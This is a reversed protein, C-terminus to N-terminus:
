SRIQAPHDDGQTLAALAAKPDDVHLHIRTIEAQRGLPRTITVPATLEIALNTQHSIAVSLRGDRVTITGTENLNRAPRATAILARPIRADLFAGYRIRLEDRTIVHPRTVCSAHMALAALVSYGDLVLFALRIPDPVDWARLLIEVAVLEVVMLFIMVLLMPTQERAYPVATAGPPVGHRRRAAWLVLSVLGKTDFGMIQRVQVPVLRRVAQRLAARRNAGTRREARYLRWFVAGELALVALVVAEAAILIPEPIEVGSILLVALVLEGPIATYLAARAVRLAPGQPHATM